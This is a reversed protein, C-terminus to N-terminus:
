QSSSESAESNTEQRNLVAWLKAYTRDGMMKKLAAKWRDQRELKALLGSSPDLLQAFWEVSQGNRVNLRGVLEQTAQELRPISSYVQTYGAERCAALVRRDFRGGPLSMATIATGLKDELHLRASGLETKLAQDTCHTLLTHTWGHSGIRQGGAHLARLEEWGMYGSRTGTWGGTIFFTAQLGRSALAPLALEYNSIHGDDFTIEPWFLPAGHRRAQVFFDAHREFEDREVVYSYDSPSNRLEHYLLHLRNSSPSM